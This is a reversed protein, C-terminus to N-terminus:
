PVLTSSADDAPPLVKTAHLSTQVLRDIIKDTGVSCSAAFTVRLQEIVDDVTYQSFDIKEHMNWYDISKLIAESNGPIQRREIMYTVMNKLKKVVNVQLTKLQKAVSSGITSVVKSQKDFEMSDAISQTEYEDDTDFEEESLQLPRNNLHACFKKDANKNIIDDALAGPPNVIDLTDDDKGINDTRNDDAPPPPEDSPATPDKPPMNLKDVDTPHNFFTLKPRVTFKFYIVKFVILATKDLTFHPRLSLVIQQQEPDAFKTDFYFLIDRNIKQGLRECVDSYIKLQGLPADIGTHRIAYWTIRVDKNEPSYAVIGRSDNLFENYPDLGRFSIVFTDM